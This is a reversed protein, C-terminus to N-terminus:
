MKKVRESKCRRFSGFQMRASEDTNSKIEITNFNDREYPMYM